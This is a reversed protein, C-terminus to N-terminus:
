FYHYFLIHLRNRLLDFSLYYVFQKEAKVVLPVIKKKRTISTKKAQERM